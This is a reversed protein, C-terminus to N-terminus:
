KWRTPCASDPNRSGSGRRWPRTAPSAASATRGSHAARASRRRCWHFGACASRACAAPSTFRRHARACNIQPTNLLMPHRCLVQASRAGVTIKTRISVMRVLIVTISLLLLLRPNSKYLIASQTRISEDDTRLRHDARVTKRGRLMAVRCCHSTRFSSDRM